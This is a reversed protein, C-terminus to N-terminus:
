MAAELFKRRQDPTLKTIAETLLEHMVAQVEDSRKRLEALAKDLEAPDIEDARLM